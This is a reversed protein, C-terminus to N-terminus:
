LLTASCLLDSGAGSTVDLWWLCPAVDVHSPSEGGGACTGPNGGSLPVVERPTIM